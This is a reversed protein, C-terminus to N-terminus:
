KAAWSAPIVVAVAALFFLSEVTASFETAYTPHTLFPWTYAASTAVHATVIALVPTPLRRRILCLVIIAGAVIAAALMIIRCAPFSDSTYGPQGLPNGAALGVFHSAVAAIMSEGDGAYFAALLALASAIAASAGLVIHAPMRRIPTTVLILLAPYLVLPFYLLHEFFLVGGIAGVLATVAAGAPRAAIAREALGLTVILLGTAFLKTSLAYSVRAHYIWYFEPTLLLSLMFLLIAAKAPASLTKSAVTAAAMALTVTSFAVKIITAYTQMYAITIEPSGLLWETLWHAPRLATYYFFGFYHYFFSDHLLPKLPPWLSATFEESAAMFWLGGTAAVVAIPALELVVLVVFLVALSRASRKDAM